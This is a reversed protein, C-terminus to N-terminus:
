WRGVDGGGRRSCTAGDAAREGGGPGTGGDHDLRIRRRPLRRATTTRRM